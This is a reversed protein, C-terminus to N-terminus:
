VKNGVIIPQFFIDDIRQINVYGAQELLRMLHPITIPYYQTRLVSTVCNRDGFDRIIYMSLRFIAEHCDWVQLIVYRIGNIEKIAYPRITGSQINEGEYDRTSIICGGGIKSLNYFQQFASIIADDSLLHQIASDITIVVDAPKSHVETLNRMDSVYFPITVNRSKAERKARNIAEPSLDSASVNYGLQTLGIAQTGIGCSADIISSPARGWTKRIVKNLM